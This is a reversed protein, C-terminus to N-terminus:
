KKCDPSHWETDKQETWCVFSGDANLTIAPSINTCQGSGDYYRCTAVRCDIQAPQDKCMSYRKMRSQGNEPITKENETKVAKHRKAEIAIWDGEWIRDYKEKMVFALWLQEISEFTEVYQRHKAREKFLEDPADSPLTWDLFTNFSALTVRWNDSIMDQLQDQRPLWVAMNRYPEDSEVNRIHGDNQWEISVVLHPNELGLETALTTPTWFQIAVREMRKDYVFSPLLPRMDDVDFYIDQIEQAKECMEIYAKSTDM